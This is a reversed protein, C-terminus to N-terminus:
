ATAEGEAPGTEVHAGNSGPEIHPAGNNGNRQDIGYAEAAKLEDLASTGAVASEGPTASIVQIKSFFKEIVLEIKALKQEAPLKELTEFYRGLWFEVRVFHRDKSGEPRGARNIRPDGKAFAM